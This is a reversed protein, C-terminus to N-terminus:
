VAVQVGPVNVPDETVDGIVTGLRTLPVGYLQETCALLAMPALAAEAVTLTVGTELKGGASALTTDRLICLGDLVNSNPMLRLPANVTSGRVIPM